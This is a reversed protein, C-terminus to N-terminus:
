ERHLPSLRHWDFVFLSAYDHHFSMKVSVMSVVVFLVAYIDMICSTVAAAFGVAEWTDERVRYMISCSQIKPELVGIAQSDLLQSIQNLPSSLFWHMLRQTAPRVRYNTKHPLAAASKACSLAFSPYAFGLHAAPSCLRLSEPLM